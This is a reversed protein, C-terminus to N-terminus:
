QIPVTIVPTGSEDNKKNEPKGDGKKFKKFPEFPKMKGAELTSIKNVYEDNIYEADQSNKVVHPTLLIVIETRETNDVTNGFLYGLIPIKNLFPIGDNSKSTDERILGGIVITQGDKAVLTSTVDMKNLIITSEDFGLKETYYDSVEQYLEVSVLGGEHIRPKVKLIIGIDKYQITRIPTSALTSTGYTESTVIPVQKGIQIKAERNDAVMIHPAALVKSRQDKALANIVARVQGGPDIGWFNFGPNSAVAKSDLAGPNVAITTGLIGMNLKLSWALGLSMNDTLTVRAVIGEFLVQRPVIDIKDITQKITAYDEATAIIVVANIIEDPIIKTNASVIAEGVIQSTAAMIIPSPTQTQTTQAPTQTTSGTTPKAPGQDAPAKAGLFIQQLLSAMDKAKNNQVHYLFVQPRKERQQENDFLDILKLLRKVNSDTDVIIIYNSKPVDVVVANTSLFPTILKVMETSLLYRIPVVQLLAKGSLKISQPDRGYGIPAPERPADSMPIIRYLGSEEVIAIGNLRLIVEMLPLVDAQAVPAISRFTVRGKVRPDIVYNYQLINAFITQIVSYIDADDFNLSVQGMKVGWTATEQIATAAPPASSPEPGTPTPQAPFMVSPDPFPPPAVMPNLSGPTQGTPTQRPMSPPIPPPPFDLPPASGRQALQVHSNQASRDDVGM